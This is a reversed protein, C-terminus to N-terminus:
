QKVIKQFGKKNEVEIEVVYMGKKLDSISITTHTEVRNQLLLRGELSYIKLNVFTIKDSLRLQFGDATPNPALDFQINSQEALYPAVAMDGNFLQLGGSYNGKLLVFDNAGSFSGFCAASRM